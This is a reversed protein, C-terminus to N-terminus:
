EYTGTFGTAAIVGCLMAFGATIAGLDNLGASFALFSVSACAIAGIWRM